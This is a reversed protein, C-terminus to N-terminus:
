RRNGAKSGRALKGRVKAAIDTAKDKRQKECTVLQTTFKVGESTREIRYGNIIKKFGSESKIHVRENFSATGKGSSCSSNSTTEGTVYTSIRSLFSSLLYINSTENITKDASIPFTDVIPFRQCKGELEKIPKINISLEIRNYFTSQHDQTTITKELISEDRLLESVEILQDDIHSPVPINIHEDWGDNTEVPQNPSMRRKKTTLVAVYTIPQNITTNIEDDMKQRRTLKPSITTACGSSLILFVLIRILDPNLIKTIDPTEQNQETAPMQDCSKKGM